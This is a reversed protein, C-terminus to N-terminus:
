KLQQVLAAGPGVRLSPRVGWHTAISLGELRSVDMIPGKFHQSVVFYDLMRGEGCACTWQTPAVIM